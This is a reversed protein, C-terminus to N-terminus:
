SRRPEGRYTGFSWVNGECDRVSFQRSGYDTDQMPTVLTAGAATARTLLADPADTVVYAAGRGPPVAVGGHEADDDERASGLMVGGGLPWDLQAHQVFPGEAFVATAEFGFAEVLFAILAHADRARLSPWVTPAPPAGTTRAADSTTTDTDAM